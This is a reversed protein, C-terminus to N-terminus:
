LSLLNKYIRKQFNHLIKKRVSKRQKRDLTMKIECSFPLIYSLKFGRLTVISPDSFFSGLKLFPIKPLLKVGNLFTVKPTFTPLPQM